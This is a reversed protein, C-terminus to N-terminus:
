KSKRTQYITEAEMESCLRDTRILYVSKEGEPRIRAKSRVFGCDPCLSLCISNRPGIPFWRIKKECRKGCSPCFTTRAEKSSLAASRNPFPRSIYKTYTPYTLLIEESKKSPLRYYDVSSFTQMDHPDLFSAILATYRADSLAGHFDETAPINLMEVAAALSIRAKGDQFTKSFIKQLDCYLLPYPFPSEMKHWAMNRQLETLDSPGWSCFYPDEGCWELFDAAAQPFKPQNRLDEKSIHIVKRTMYHLTKYVSPSIFRHFSDVISLSDDLRFAGIELIEFPLHPNENKKGSPCQNWELDFVIYNM